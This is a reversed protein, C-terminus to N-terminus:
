IREVSVPYDWNCMEQEVEIEGWNNKVEWEIEYENDTEDIGAVKYVPKWNAPGDIYPHQKLSVEIRTYFNNNENKLYSKIVSGNEEQKLLNIM